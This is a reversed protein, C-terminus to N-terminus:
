KDVVVDNDKKPSGFGDGGLARNAARVIESCHPNSKSNGGVVWEYLCFLEARYNPQQEILCEMNEFQGVITANLDDLAERCMDEYYGGQKFDTANDYSCAGLYNSGRFERWEAVVKVTCWAWLDGNELRRQIDRVLQADAEKDGSDFAPPNGGVLPIDEEEIEITFEVEQETLKRLRM